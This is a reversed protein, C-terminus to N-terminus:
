DDLEYPNRMNLRHMARIELAEMRQAEEDTEHDFGLLHLVGHIVLHASHATLSKGQELAERVLVPACVVLDGLYRENSMAEPLDDADYPFSLVNTAYNKHRYQNNLSKGEDDDVFRITLALATTIKEEALAARVWEILRNRSPCRLETAKQRDVFLELTSVPNM